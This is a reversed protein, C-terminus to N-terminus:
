AWPNEEDPPLDLVRAHVPPTSEERAVVGDVDEFLREEEEEIEEKSEAADSPEVEPDDVEVEGRIEEKSEPDDIVFGRRYVKRLGAGGLAPEGKRRERTREEEAAEPDEVILDVADPPLTRSNNRSIQPPSRVHNGNEGNGSGSPSPSAVANNGNSTKRSRPTIPSSTPSSSLSSQKGNSHQSRGNNDKNSSTVLRKVNTWKFKIAGGGDDDVVDDLGARDADYDIIREESDQQVDHMRAKGKGNEKHAEAVLNPHLSVAGYGTGPGRIPSAWAGREDSLVREEENWMTIRAQESSVDINPYNYDGFLYRRSSDFMEEDEEDIDGFPLEFGADPDGDVGRFDWDPNNPRGELDPANHYVDEAEAELLPAHVEEAQAGLRKVANNIGRELKGPAARQAVPLPLWYKTKGGKSYRLGAKIRRERGIGQHMFGESPEFARYDMGEGRLTARSDEVVDKLGFADRFAYYAPMRAVYHLSPTSFDRPAFAYMHAIAFLPMEFAVLTDTLGLSIHEM